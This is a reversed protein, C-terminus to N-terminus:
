EMPSYTIYSTPTEYITIEVLEGTLFTSASKIAEWLYKAINEATPMNRMRDFASKRINPTQRDQEISLPFFVNLHQHDLEDIIPQVVEKIKAFDVVMDNVEDGEFTVLVRYNHGHHVGCKEHGPLYHAACFNFEKTATIM